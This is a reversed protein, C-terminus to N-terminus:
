GPREARPSPLSRAAPAFTMEPLDPLNYPIRHIRHITCSGTSGTILELFASRATFICVDESVLDGIKMLIWSLVWLCGWPVGLHGLPDWFAVLPVGLCGLTGWIADFPPGFPAWLCGLAGWPAGLPGFPPGFPAGLCGLAGRMTTMM